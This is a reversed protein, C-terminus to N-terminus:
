WRTVSKDRAPFPCLRVLPWRRGDASVQVRMVGGDVSIRMWFDSADGQFPATAWDSREMTLVSSLMAAGDSIEVGAKLWTHDDILVMLGAQDYLERFRAQVRLTATFGGQVECGFLHGTHRIFGYHTERWFDTANDTTVSLGSPGLQWRAPENM